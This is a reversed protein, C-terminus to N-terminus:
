AARWPALAGQFRKVSMREGVHHVVDELTAAHQRRDFAATADELVTVEYGLDQAAWATAAVCVHLALGALYIQSVRRARLLLDLNSGAFASAGARGQVVLEGDRPVFPPWFTSGPGAAAFTGARRIAARLGSRAAGLEPYGPAFRLGAHVVLMGAARAAGLARGAGDAAEALLAPEVLRHLRGEPHLWEHQLEILLLAAREPGAVDLTETM